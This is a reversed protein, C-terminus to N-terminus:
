VGIIKEVMQQKRFVSSLVKEDVSGPSVIYECRVSSHNSGRRSARKEAQRNGEDSWSFEGFIVRSARQLNHGRSMAGINGIILKFKGAQFDEFAKERVDSDTGGQILAPKFKKLEEALEEGVSKHWIFLLISENKEELRERVYSAIFPVKRLGLDRRFRALDGQSSKEDIVTLGSLHKKEWTKQEHSRVDENMMLISRLREPHSLESEAVVHMFTKQIKSKLEAERSSGKYEWQGRPNLTAGCYRFGFDDYGLCDIAMPDLAYTPAWVDIVRNPMPSGDLLVVHRADQFLGQYKVGDLHGGYFALSRKSSFEKLRSAEDVVIFNFNTALDRLKRYVWGAWLMSDPVILFDSHWAVEAKAASRGVIGISPFEGMMPAFKEIERKWNMTLSPPVVLLVQKRDAAMYSAVIAQCTKGAGPAHALYSRKRSLVWVVGGIQHKDLWAPMAYISLHAGYMCNFARDFIKKCKGDACNRFEFASKLDRTSFTEPGTKVWVAPQLASSPKHLFFYGNNFTLTPM